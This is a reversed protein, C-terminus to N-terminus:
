DFLELGSFPINLFASAGDFSWNQSDYANSSFHDFCFSNMSYEVFCYCFMEAIYHFSHGNLYLFGGPSLVSKVLISSGLSM